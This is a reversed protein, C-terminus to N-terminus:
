QRHAEVPAGKGWASRPTVVIRRRSSRRPVATRRGRVTNAVWSASGGRVTAWVASVVRGSAEPKVRTPQVPSSWRGTGSEGVGDAAGDGGGEGEVGGALAEAGEAGVGGGEEVGKGGQVIAVAEGELHGEAAVPGDGGGGALGGIVGVDVADRVGGRAGGEVGDDDVGAVPVTQGEGGEDEDGAAGAGAGGGKKIGAVVGLGDGVAAEGHDDEVGIPAAEAVAGFVLVAEGGLVTEGGHDIESRGERFRLASGETDGGDGKADGHGCAGEGAMGGQGDGEEYVPLPGGVAVVGGPAVARGHAVQADDDGAVIFGEPGLALREGEDGVDGDGVRAELGLAVVGLGVVLVGPGHDIGGDGAGDGPHAEVRVRGVAEVRGAGRKGRRGSLTSLSTAPRM